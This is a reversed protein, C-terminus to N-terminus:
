KLSRLQFIRIRGVDAVVINLKVYHLNHSIEIQDIRLVVADGHLQFVRKTLDTRRVEESVHHRENCFNIVNAVFTSSTLIESNLLQHRLARTCCFNSNKYGLKRLKRGCLVRTLKP